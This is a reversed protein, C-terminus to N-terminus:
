KAALELIIGYLLDAESIMFTELNLESVIVWLIELGFVIIDARQPQLGTVHQRQILTLRSLKKQWKRVLKSDLVTGHVKLHDYIELKKEMAVLTTATGGVVVLRGCVSKIKDLGPRLIKRIIEEDMSHQFCRVAGVPFSEVWFGWAPDEMALETSGGGIDAVAITHESDTPIAGSVGRYTLSAEQNGTIISIELGTQMRALSIFEGANNAERLASTAVAQIDKINFRDLEKKFEILGSITRVMAQKNLTGGPVLGEGIRTGLLMTRIPIVQGNSVTGLLLRISNTGVDVAAYIEDQM